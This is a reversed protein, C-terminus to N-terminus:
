HAEAWSQGQGMDVTLPVSLQLKPLTASEMVKKVVDTTQDLVENDVEFILEDHVTLLMHAKKTLGYQELAPPVRIMARKLIDAASGQLPANIAAREAFNRRAPNQDHIGPVYCRRGFLTQVYGHERCFQKTREMYDQIGPYREFYAKMYAAAESQEVGLQRALGFASIGYIIGFNIAKAKRRISPDLQEPPIGFVQSATLTHIDQGERFAKKLARIDATHALLRLEIQSYDLSLLTRGPEAVFAKRIKRGEETRIPINQLNPDTSSLRGTSASAMAYSTHVRKTQPHIQEILAQTYTSNLKDLHRWELMKGPLPHGQAALSELVIASTTYTGAKGKQGGELGMEEFLIEGLQKPSGVNFPHGALQHITHELEGLRQSFDANLRKLQALDVKIGEAEM